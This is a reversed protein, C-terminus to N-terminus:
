RRMAGIPPADRPCRRDPQAGDLHAPRRQRASARTPARASSIPKSRACASRWRALLRRGRRTGAAVRGAGDVDLSSRSWPSPSSSIAGRASSSSRPARRRRAHAARPHRHPDRGPRARDPPQRHHFRELPLTRRGRPSALEVEADLALLPPVGDAAPSANCLNGGITGANQIQVSGVERAAAKLGDFRARCRPRLLDTWTTRAGIRIGDAATAIGRLSDIRSLDIVAEDLRPGDLAPFVDTGGSLLRGGGRAVADLAEELSKPRHYM